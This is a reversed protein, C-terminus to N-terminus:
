PDENDKTIQLEGGEWTLSVKEEDEKSENDKKVNSEKRHITKESLKKREKVKFREEGSKGGKIEIEANPYKRELEKRVKERDMKDSLRAKVTAGESTQTIRVSYGGGKGRLNRFSGFM